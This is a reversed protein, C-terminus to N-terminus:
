ANKCTKCVCSSEESAGLIRWLDQVAAAVSETERRLRDLSPPTPRGSRQPEGYIFSGQLWGLRSSVRSLAQALPPLGHSGLRRWPEM